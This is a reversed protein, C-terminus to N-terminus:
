VFCNYIHNRYWLSLFRVDTFDICDSRCCNAGLGVTKTSFDTSHMSHGPMYVEEIGIFCGRVSSLRIFHLQM